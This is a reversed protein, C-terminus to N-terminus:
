PTVRVLLATADDHRKLRAFRAGDADEREIQRLQDMLSGLSRSRAAGILDPFPITGFVDSLRSFGDSALLITTGPPADIFGSRVFKDPPLTISLAGYGGPTNLKDRGRRLRDAMEARIRGWEIPQADDQRRSKVRDLFLRDGAIEEDVGIRTFRGDPTEALLVCDGACYHELRGADLRVISGAASPHEHRHRVPRVATNEFATAIQDTAAAIMAPLGQSTIPENALSSLASDLAAAFWSADSDAPLIPTELVDTAGDIVWAMRGAGGARDENVRGGPSTARDLIELKM